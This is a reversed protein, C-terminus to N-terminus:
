EQDLDLCEPANGTYNLYISVFANRFAKVLALDNLQDNPLLKCIEGMPYRPMPKLFSSAQPYDTM